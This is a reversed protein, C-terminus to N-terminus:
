PYGLPTARGTGGRVEWGAGVGHENRGFLDPGYTSVTVVVADRPVFKGGACGAVVVFAAFAAFRFGMQM